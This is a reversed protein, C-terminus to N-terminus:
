KEPFDPKVKMHFMHQDYLECAIKIGFKESHYFYYNKFPLAQSLQM